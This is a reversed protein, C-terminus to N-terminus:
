GSTRWLICLELVPPSEDDIWGYIRFRPL